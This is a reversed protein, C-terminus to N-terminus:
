LPKGCTNPKVTHVMPSIRARGAKYADVAVPVRYLAAKRSGLVIICDAKEGTDALGQFLLRDIIEVTLDEEKIQSVLMSDEECIPKRLYM